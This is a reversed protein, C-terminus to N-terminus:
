HEHAHEHHDAMPLSMVGVGYRYVLESGYWATIVVMIQIIFLVLLFFFSITKKRYRRIISWLTTVIILTATPVAWNRHTVMVMHSVEDHRVTLFAYIGALATGITILGCAWLVWQGVLEFESSRQYQSNWRFLYALLYFIFSISILAATYHVFIPHWNPIIEIM